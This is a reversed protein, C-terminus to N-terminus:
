NFLYVVATMVIALVFNIPTITGKGGFDKLYNKLESLREKDWELLKRNKKSIEELAERENKTLKKIFEELEDFQKARVFRSSLDGLTSVISM